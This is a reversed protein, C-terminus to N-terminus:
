DHLRLLYLDLYIDVIQESYAEQSIYKQLHDFIRSPPTILRDDAIIIQIKQLENLSKKDNPYGKLPFSLVFDLNELDMDNTKSTESRVGCNNFLMKWKGRFCDGKEYIKM